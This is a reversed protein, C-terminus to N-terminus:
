NKIKSKKQKLMPPKKLYYNYVGLFLSIYDLDGRYSGLEANEKIWKKLKKWNLNPIGHFKRYEKNELCRYGICILLAWKFPDGINQDNIGNRHYNAAEEIKNALEEGWDKVFKERIENNGM